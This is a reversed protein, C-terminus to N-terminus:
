HNVAHRIDTRDAAMGASCAHTQLLGAGFVPDPGPEGLDLAEKRLADALQQTSAKPDATRMLAVEASVFPTAFSTGDVFRGHGEADASWVHVGPASLAIYSGHTAQSYIRGYRDVATVAIVESYAGPYRPPGSPGSNGAAAVVAIGAASARRVVEHLVSNDPGAIAVNIVAPRQGVLWDFGRAIQLANAQDNNGSVDFVDAALVHARPVLGSFGQATDGVFLTAIETGHEAGATSTASNGFHKQVMRGGVLAPSAEAVATDVMGITVEKTCGPLPWGVAKQGDCRIGECPDAAGRSALYHSNLDYIGGPDAERLQRLAVETPLGGPTALKALHFDLARLSLEDVVRFGMARARIRAERSLNIALVSDAEFVRGDDTRDEADRRDGGDGVRGEGGRDDGHESDDGHRDDSGTRGDEATGEAGDDAWAAAASTGFVAALLWPGSSVAGPGAGALALVLLEIVALLRITRM